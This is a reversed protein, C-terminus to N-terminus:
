NNRTKGNNSNNILFNKKIARVTIDYLEAVLTFDDSLEYTLLRENNFCRFYDDLDLAPSVKYIRGDCVVQRFKNFRINGINVFTDDKELYNHFNVQGISIFRPLFKDVLKMPTCNQKVCEFFVNCAGATAQTFSEIQDVGRMIGFHDEVDRATTTYSAVIGAEPSHWHFKNVLLKTPGHLVLVDKPLWGVLNDM